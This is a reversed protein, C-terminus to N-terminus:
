DDHDSNRAAAATLEAPLSSDLTVLGPRLASVTALVAGLAGAVLSGDLKHRPFM